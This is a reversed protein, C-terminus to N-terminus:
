ASKEKRYDIVEQAIEEDTLAPQDKTDEAVDKVLQRFREGWTKSDLQQRLELLEEPSLQEVLKLVEIMTNKPDPIRQAM